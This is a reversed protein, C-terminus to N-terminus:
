VSSGAWLMCNESLTYVAAVSTNCQYGTVGRESTSRNTRGFGTRHVGVPPREYAILKAEEDAGYNHTKDKVLYSLIKSPKLPTEYQDDVSLIFSM